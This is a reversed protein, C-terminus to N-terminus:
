AHGVLRRRRGTRGCGSRGARGCRREGYRTERDPVEEASTKCKGAEDAADRANRELPRQRARLSRGSTAISVSICPLIVAYILYGVGSSSTNYNIHM